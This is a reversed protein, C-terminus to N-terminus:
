RWYFRYNLKRNNNYLENLINRGKKNLAETEKDMYEEQLAEDKVDGYGYNLLTNTRNLTKSTGAAVLAATKATADPSM